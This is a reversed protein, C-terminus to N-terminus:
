ATLKHGPFAIPEVTEHAFTFLPINCGFTIMGALWGMDEYADSPTKQADWTYNSMIHGGLSHAMVVLPVAIGGLASAHLDRLEERVIAHIRQYPNSPDSNVWQYAVADGLATVVFKRLPKWDLDGHRKAARFFEMQRDELVDAWYISTFAIEDAGGTRIREVRDELEEIMGHAFRAGPSGMGHIVAVGLKKAM